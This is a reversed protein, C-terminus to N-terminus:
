IRDLRTVDIWTSSVAGTMSAGPSQAQYRLVRLDDGRFLEYFSSGNVRTINSDVGHFGCYWGDQVGNISLAVGGFEWPNPPNSFQISLNVWYLGDQWCTIVDGSRSFSAPISWNHRVTTDLDMVGTVRDSLANDTTKSCRTNAIRTKM